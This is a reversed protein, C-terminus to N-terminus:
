QFSNCSGLGWWTCRETPSAQIEWTYIGMPLFDWWLKAARCKYIKEMCLCRKRYQSLALPLLAKLVLSFLPFLLSMVELKKALCAQKGQSTVWRREPATITDLKINTTPYQSARKQMQLPCLSVCPNYWPDKQVLCRDVVHYASMTPFQAWPGRRVVWARSRMMMSDNYFLKIQFPGKLAM